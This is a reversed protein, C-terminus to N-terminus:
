RIRSRSVRSSWSRTSAPPATDIMRHAGLHVQAVPRDVDVGVHHTVWGTAAAARRSPGGSPGGRAWSRCTRHRPDRPPRGLTGSRAGHRRRGRREGNRVALATNGDQMPSATAPRIALPPTARWGSRRGQDAVPTSRQGCREGAHVEHARGGRLQQLVHGLRRRCVRAPEPAVRQQEVGGRHVEPPSPPGSRTTRPLSYGNRWPSEFPYEGIGAKGAVERGPHARVM